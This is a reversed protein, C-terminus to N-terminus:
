LGALRLRSGFRCHSFLTLLCNTVQANQYRLVMAFSPRVNLACSASPNCRLDAFIIHRSVALDWHLYAVCRALTSSNSALSEFRSKWVYREKNVFMVSSRVRVNRTGAPPNRQKKQTLTPRVFPQTAPRPNQTPVKRYRHRLKPRIRRHPRRRHIQHLWCVLAVRPM